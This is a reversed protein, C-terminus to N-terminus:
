ITTTSEPRVQPNIKPSRGQNLYQMITITLERHNKGNWSPKAVRAHIHCARLARSPETRHQITRANSINYHYIRAQGTSQNKFIKRSKSAPRHNHSIRSSEQWKLISSALKAHIHCTRLARSPKTGHQM